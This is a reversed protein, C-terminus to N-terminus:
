ACEPPGGWVILNQGHFRYQERERQDAGGTNGAGGTGGAGGAGGAVMAGAVGGTGGNAGIGGVTGDDDDPESTCGLAIVCLGLWIVSKTM